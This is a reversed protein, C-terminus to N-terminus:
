GFVRWGLLTTVCSWASILVASLISLFSSSPSSVFVCFVPLLGLSIPPPLSHSLFILRLCSICLCLLTAHAAFPLWIIFLTFSSSFPHLLGSTRGVSWMHSHNVKWREGARGGETRGDMGQKEGRQWSTPLTERCPTLGECSGANGGGGGGAM